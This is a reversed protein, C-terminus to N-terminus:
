ERRRLPHDEPVQVVIIETGDPDTIRMEHLGWPKTEPPEVIRVGRAALDAYTAQLDRVQLWLGVRGSTRRPDALSIELFGGGLFFVVGRHEGSGWERFVHLGLDESYFRVSRELDSPRLLVRSSLVEM